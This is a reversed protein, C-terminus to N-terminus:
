AEGGNLGGSWPDLPEPEEPMPVADPIPAEEPTPIVDPELAEEPADPWGDAASDVADGDVPSFTFTLTVSVNDDASWPEVPDVSTAGFMRFVGESPGAELTLVEKAESAYESVWIQNEGGDYSGSWLGDENQFEAYLFILKEQEGEAPPANTFTMDSPGSIQGEASASVIVPVDSENRIVLTESAIQDTTTGGGIETPLGYPNIIIRGTEPVTVRIAPAEDLSPLSVESTMVTQAGLAHAPVAAALALLWALTLCIKKM